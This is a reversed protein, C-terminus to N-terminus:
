YRNQRHMQMNMDMLQISNFRNMRDIEANRQDNRQNIAEIEKKRKGEPSFPNAMNLTSSRVMKASDGCSIIRKFKADDTIMSEVNNIICQTFKDFVGSKDRTETWRPSSLPSFAIPDNRYAKLWADYATVSKPIGTIQGGDPTYVCNKCVSPNKIFHKPYNKYLYEIAQEMTEGGAGYQYLLTAGDPLYVTKRSGTLGDYNLACGAHLIQMLEGDNTAGEVYQVCENYNKFKKDFLTFANASANLGFTLVICALILKINSM